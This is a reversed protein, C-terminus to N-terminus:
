SRPLQRLKEIWDNLGNNLDNLRAVSLWQKVMNTLLGEKLTAKVDPLFELVNDPRLVHYRPKPPELATGESTGGAIQDSSPMKAKDLLENLLKAENPNLVMRNTMEIDSDDDHLGLRADVTV